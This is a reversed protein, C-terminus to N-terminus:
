KSCVACTLERGRVYPGCPLVYCHGQVPNLKNGGSDAHSFPVYEADEDVCIFDTNGKSGYSKTMLYGWYDRTWGSPCDYRAPIMMQFGRSEVYCAACPAAYNNLPKKFPNFGSVAYEAGYIASSSSQWSDDYKAYLPQEPLCVRAVVLIVTIIEM